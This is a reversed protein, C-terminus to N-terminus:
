CTHLKREYILSSLRGHVCVCVCVGEAIPYNREEIAKQAFVRLYGTPPSLIPSSGEEGPLDVMQNSEEM